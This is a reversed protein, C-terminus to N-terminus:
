FARDVRNSMVWPSPGGGKGCPDAGLGGEKGVHAYKAFAAAIAFADLMDPHAELDIRTLISTDYTGSRFEESHLTRVAVPISTKVGTIRVESLARLMREICEERTPAFTIVKALMSDYYPTVELGRYLASDFRVGQGGPSGLREITGLSPFFTEPDEANVRVELSHGRPEAAPTAVEGAAVRLQEKVLDVGFREETIAHEVQLRTNMELFYFEGQSYMFEITGAGVYSVAKAVSAAAEEMKARLEPTVAVCPSEEVLKQHRRQVSCEREGYTVVNGHKDAIIQVEVHRPQTLFKELYVRGDSFAGEAEAKALRAAEALEKESHVIRIGKGGGGAAAKLMVPYGIGRAVETLQEITAGESDDGPVVPVNAKKVVGRAQIKDGMQEIAEPSPGIFEIGAERVKKAFGANESLFGFGPHIAEAGTRKAAELILDGRLYSESPAPPGLRVAHNALRVNLAERDADSYVAVVEIGMERCTRLVRLAIEGRNAILIRRFMLVSALAAQPATRRPNPGLQCRNFEARLGM